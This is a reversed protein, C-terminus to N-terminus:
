SVTFAGNNVDLGSAKLEHKSGNAIQNVEQADLKIENPGVTLIAGSETEITLSGEDDDIRMVVGDTRWFKISPKADETAIQEDGDGWFCGVWIPFNPDGGEFEVWVGADTRSNWSSVEGDFVPPIAYLGVNKGAYNVCPLAWIAQPGMVNPVVVKLRGRHKEDDNSVVVGRYKGFYKQSLVQLLSEANM